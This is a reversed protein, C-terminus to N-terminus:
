PPDISSLDGMSTLTWWKASADRFRLTILVNDNNLFHSRQPGPVETVDVPIEHLVEASEQPLIVRGWRKPAYQSPTLDRFANQWVQEFERNGVIGENAAAVRCGYIPLRSANLVFISYVHVLNNTPDRQRQWWVAIQCAQGRMATDHVREQEATLLEIQRTQQKNTELAARAARAAFIVALLTAAAVIWDPWTGSEVGLGALWPFGYTLLWPWAFWTVVCLGMLSGCLALTIM